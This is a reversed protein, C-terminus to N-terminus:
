SKTKFNKNKIPPYNNVTNHHNRGYDVNILWLYVYTGERKFRAGWGVGRPQGLACTQAGQMM